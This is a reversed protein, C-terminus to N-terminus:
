LLIRNKTVFIFINIRLEITFVNSNIVQKTYLVLVEFYNLCHQLLLFKLETYSFDQIKKM